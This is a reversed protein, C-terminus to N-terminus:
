TRFVDLMAHACRDLLTTLYFAVDALAQIYKDTHIPSRQMSWMLCFYCLVTRKLCYFKALLLHSINHCTPLSVVACM